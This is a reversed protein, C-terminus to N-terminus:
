VVCNIYVLSHSSNRMFDAYERTDRIKMMGEVILIILNSRQQLIITAKLSDHQINFAQWQLM